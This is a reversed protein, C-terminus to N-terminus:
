MAVPSLITPTIRNSLFDVQKRIAEDVSKQVSTFARLSAQANSPLSQVDRVSEDPATRSPSHVALLAHVFYVPFPLGEFSAGQGTTSRVGYIRHM